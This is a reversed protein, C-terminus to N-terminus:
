NFIRTLGSNVLLCKRNWEQQFNKYMDTPRLLTPLKTTPLKKRKKKQCILINFIRFKTLFQTAYYNEELAEPVRPNYTLFIYAVSSFIGQNWSFKFFFGIIINHPTIRKRRWYYLAYLLPCVWDLQTRTLTKSNSILYM